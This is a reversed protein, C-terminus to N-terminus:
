AYPGVPQPGPSRPGALRGAGVPRASRCHAASTGTPPKWRHGRSASRSSSGPASVTASRLGNRSRRSGSVNAARWAQAASSRRDTLPWTSNRRRRASRSAPRSAPRPAGGSSRACGLPRGRSPLPYHSGHPGPPELSPRSPEQRNSGRFSRALRDGPGSRGPDARSRCAPVRISRTLREARGFPAHLRPCGRDEAGMPAHAPAEHDPLM